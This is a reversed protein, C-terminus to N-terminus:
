PFYEAAPVRHGAEELARIVPHPNMTQLRMVLMTREGDPAPVSAISAIRVGRGEIVRVVEGVGGPRAPVEVEIRSGVESIGLMEALMDMVDTTTVIGELRGAAIVPLCGVKHQTMLKACHEVPTFPAVAVVERSMIRSVPLTRLQEAYARAEEAAAPLPVAVRMDRSSVIGVVKGDELVPLHRIRHAQMLSQAHALTDNPQITIVATRMRKAVLM